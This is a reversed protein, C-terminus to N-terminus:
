VGAPLKQWGALGTEGYRLIWLGGDPCIERPDHVNRRAAKFKGCM